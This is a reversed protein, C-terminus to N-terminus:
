KNSRLQYKGRSKDNKSPTKDIELSLNPKLFSRRVRVAIKPDAMTKEANNQIKDDDAVSDLPIVRNRISLRKLNFHKLLLSEKRKINGEMGGHRGKGIRSLRRREQEDQDQKDRFAKNKNVIYAQLDKVYSLRSQTPDKMRENAKLTWFSEGIIQLRIHLQLMKLPAVVSPNQATWRNFEEMSLKNALDKRLQNFVGNLNPDKDIKKMHIMELIERVATVVFIRYTVSTVSSMKRHLSVPFIVM